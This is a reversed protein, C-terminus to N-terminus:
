SVASFSRSGWPIFLCFLVGLSMMPFSVSVLGLSFIRWFVTLFFLAIGKFPAFILIQSTLLGHFRSFLVATSELYWLGWYM